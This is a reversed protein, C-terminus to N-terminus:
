VMHKVPSAITESVAAEHCKSVDATSVNREPALQLVVDDSSCQLMRHTLDAANCYHEGEVADANASKAEAIARKKRPQPKGPLIKKLVPNELLDLAAADAPMRRIPKNTGKPLGQGPKPRSLIIEKAEPQWDGTSRRAIREPAGLRTPPIVPMHGNLISAALEVDAEDLPAGQEPVAALPAATIHPLDATAQVAQQKELDKQQKRQKRSPKQHLGPQPGPSGDSSGATDPVENGTIAHDADPVTASPKDVAAAAARKNRKGTLVTWEEGADNDPEALQGVDSTSATSQAESDAAATAEHDAAATATPAAAQLKTPKADPQIAAKHQMPKKGKDDAASQKTPVQAQDRVVGASTPRHAAITSPTEVEATAAQHQKNALKDTTPATTTDADANGQQAKMAAVKKREKAGPKKAPKHENAAADADAVQQDAQTPSAPGRQQADAGAANGTTLLSIAGNCICVTYLVSLHAM